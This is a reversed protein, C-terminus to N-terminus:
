KTAKIEKTELARARYAEFWGRPVKSNKQLKEVIKTPHVLLVFRYQQNGIKKSKIFGLTDLIKMREQWTRIARPGSYGSGYAHDAESVMEILGSDVHRSLLELYVSSPDKNGSLHKSALANLLHPLTRPAKFWGLENMGTWAEEKPWYEAKILERKETSPHKAM